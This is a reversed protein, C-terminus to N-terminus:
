YPLRIGEKIICEHYRSELNEFYPRLHDVQKIEEWNKRLSKILGKETRPNEEAVKSKLTSWVNEIPNLDPSYTPFDILKLEQKKMLTEIKRHSPHNDHQFHFSEPYLENM